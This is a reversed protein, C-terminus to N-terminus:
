NEEGLTRALAFVPADWAQVSALADREDLAAPDFPRLALLTQPSVTEM